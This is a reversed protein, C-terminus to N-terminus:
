FIRCFNPKSTLRLAKDENTMLKLKIESGYNTPVIRSPVKFHPPSPPASQISASLPVFDPTSNEYASRPTKNNKLSSISKTPKDSVKQGRNDELNNSNINPSRKIKRHRSRHITSTTHARFRTNIM